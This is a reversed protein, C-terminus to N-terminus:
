LYIILFIVPVLIGISTLWAGRGTIGKKGRLVFLGTIAVIGLMAAYLDAILTWWGKIRNLHLLNSEYFVFRKRVKEQISRGTNLDVSITNGNQFIKITFPDPQFANKYSDPLELRNLIAEIEDKTLVISKSQVPGINKEIIEIKYSPNWDSIHNVAIGSIVYIITLGFCLYGLDRHFINNWKRWKIKM